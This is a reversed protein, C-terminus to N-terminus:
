ETSPKRQMSRCFCAPPGGTKMAEMVLLLRVGNDKGERGPIFGTQDPHVWYSMKDKLRSALVKAYLKIDANLLAIPSYSSCLSSDKGEKPILTVLAMLAGECLEEQGGLGNWIQCLKPILPEKFKKYFYSTFGDPGPSKGSPSAKLAREIEEVTIPRELEKADSDSLSPLGAERIFEDIKEEREPTGLGGQRM